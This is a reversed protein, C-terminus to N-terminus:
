LAKGGSFQTYKNKYHFFVDCANKWSLFYLLTIKAKLHYWKLWLQLTLQILIKRILQLSTVLIIIFMIDAARLPVMLVIQSQINNNIVM